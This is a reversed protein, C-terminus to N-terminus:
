WGHARLWHEIRTALGVDLVTAPRIVTVRLKPMAVTVRPWLRLEDSIEAIADIVGALPVLESSEIEALLDGDVTTWREGLRALERVLQGPELLVASPVRASAPQLVLRGFASLAAEAEQMTQFRRAPNKALLKDAIMQALGTPLDDREIPAPQESIIRELLAHADTLSPFEGRRPLQFPVQGTLMEYLVVGLAYIDARHDISEPTLVMEPAMFEPTGLLNGGIATRDASALFRSIGFDLVKVHDRRGRSEILFVNDTKLDRHVIGAAHAAALASAIQQAIWLARDAPMERVRMIEEALATGELYELVIYPLGDKIFGMDTAEVINPHGLTGAALAENAFRRVMAADEALDAHLLKIAVRRKILCHVALFVTAMGGDAIPRVIKYRGELVEGPKVVDYGV